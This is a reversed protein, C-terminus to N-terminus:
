YYPANQLEQYKPSATTFISPVMLVTPKNPYRLHHIMISSLIMGLLALAAMTFIIGIMIDAIVLVFNMIIPFCPKSYITKNPETMRHFISIYSISQCEGEEEEESCECSAPINNEWDKYSFMGCCHLHTQLTEAVNKVEETSKDLPLMSRFQDTLIGTLQPRAFAAVVGVGLMMLSGIVMCVLFIILCAKNEKHAGYAGLFAIILTVGGVIYLLIYGNTHGELDRGNISTLIQSLLPLLVIIAGFIAFFINFVTFTRRLCTNIQSM